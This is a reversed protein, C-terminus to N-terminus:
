KLGNISETTAVEQQEGERIHRPSQEGGAETEVNGFAVARSHGKNCEEDEQESTLM